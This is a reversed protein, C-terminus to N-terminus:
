FKATAGIFFSRGLVDYTNSWTNNGNSPQATGLVPPNKDFLNNIGGYLGFTENIDYSFSLDFYSYAKIMPAVFTEPDRPTVYSLADIRDDETKGIWRWRLSLTLPGDEFATRATFKWKPDPEGCTVGFTGACHQVRDPLSAVPTIDMKNLWTGTLSLRVRSEESLMGFSLPMGYDVQFDIGERKIAGINANLSTVRSITGGPHRAILRCLDSNADRAVTYCLNVVGPISGGAQAIYDDVKINFYDLSVSLRPAFSPTFVIGATYTDATEEQLNPNGGVLGEIQGGPQIARTFVAAAPVGTAVCLARLEDTRSAATGRDSCPDVGTPFSQSQGGFLEGVSPARVARQYQARVMLDDMPQWDLGAAYAWVGKVAKLSYDSYRAAAHLNLEQAFPADALIPANIETFLEKVNYHGDTGTTSNFGLIDGGNKAADPTFTAGESRWEAGFVVGVPGAGLDFLDGTVYGNAVQRTAKTLDKLNIRIYDAAAPSIDGKGFIDIPICGQSRATANRCRLTGDPAFETELGALLRSRVADTQQLQTLTRSYNYYADYRWSGTIDGRVGVVAQYANREYDSDRPGVETLRRRLPSPITVYGDNVTNGTGTQTADLEALRAQTAASFFPSRVHLIANTPSAPSAALQLVVRNNIFTGEAYAEAHDNIEYTATGRMLWREQPTMLYQFPAANYLDQPDLFDRLNGANDFIKPTSFYGTGFADISGFEGTPSGGAIFGSAAGAATAAPDQLTVSSFKRAGQLVSQRKTYGIHFTANGRAGDLNAGLTLNASYQDGDGKETVTYQGGAEIGQFDRKMIFNVVGAIADSGYVASAGGTVVDVRQILSAPITNLDVQGGTGFPVYRRGDVLVLTRLSGLNRLNTTTAGASGNNTFATVGPILQPLTNLLQETNVTGSLQIDESTVVQVPSSSVLNPRAIRSGTIVITEEGASASSNQADQAYAVCPSLGTLATSVLLLRDYRM